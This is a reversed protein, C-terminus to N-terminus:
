AREVDVVLRVEIPREPDVPDYCFLADVLGSRRATVDHCERVRHPDLARGVVRHDLLLMFPADCRAAAGPGSGPSGGSRTLGLRLPARRCDRSAESRVSGLDADVGDSPTLQSRHQVLQSRCGQGQPPSAPGAQAPAVLRPSPGDNRQRAMRRATEVGDPDPRVDVIRSGSLGDTLVRHSIVLRGRRRVHSVGHTSCSASAAIDAAMRPHRVAEPCGVRSAGCTAGHSGSQRCRPIGIPEGSSM